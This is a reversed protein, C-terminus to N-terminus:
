KLWRSQREVIRDPEAQGASDIPSCDALSDEGIGLCLRM